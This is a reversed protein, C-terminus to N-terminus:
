IQLLEKVYADVRGADCERVRSEAAEVCVRSRFSLEARIIM